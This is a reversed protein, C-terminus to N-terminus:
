PEKDEVYRAPGNVARQLLMAGGSLAPWLVLREVWAVGVWLAVPVAVWLSLCYFCDLLRGWLGSGARRRL